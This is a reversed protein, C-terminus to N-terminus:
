RWFNHTMATSVPKAPSAGSAPVTGTPREPAPHLGPRHHRHGANTRTSILFFSFICFFRRRFYMGIDAYHCNVCFVSIYLQWNIMFFNVYVAFGWGLLYLRFYDM